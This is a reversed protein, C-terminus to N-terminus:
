LACTSVCHKLDLADSDSTSSFQKDSSISETWATATSEESAGAMVFAIYIVVRLEVARESATAEDAFGPHLMVRVRRLHGAQSALFALCLASRCTNKIVHVGYKAEVVPWRKWCTDNGGPSAGDHGPSSFIADGHMPSTSVSRHWVLVDVGDGSNSGQNCCKLHTSAHM